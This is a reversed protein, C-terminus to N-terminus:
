ITREGARQELKGSGIPFRKMSKFIVEESDSTFQRGLVFVQRYVGSGLYRSLYSKLIGDGGTLWQYGSAVSHLENCTPRYLRYFSPTRCIPEHGDPRKKYGSGRNTDDDTAYYTDLSDDDSDMSSKPNFYDEPFFASISRVYSKSVEAPRQAHPKSSFLADRTSQRISQIAIQEKKKLQPKQLRLRPQFSAANNADISTDDSSQSSRSHKANEEASAKNNRNRTSQQIPKLQKRETRILHYEKRSIPVRDQHSSVGVKQKNLPRRNGRNERSTLHPSIATKRNAFEPLKSVLYSAGIERLGRVITAIKRTPRHNSLEEHDEEGGGGIPSEHSSSPARLLHLLNDRATLPSIVAKTHHDPFQSLFVAMLRVWSLFMTVFLAKAARPHYSYKRVLFVPYSWRPMLAQM